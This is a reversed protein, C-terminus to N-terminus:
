IVCPSARLEFMRFPQGGFLEPELVLAGLRRLWRISTANGDHVFNRLVPYRQFLQARFPKSQHLIPVLYAVAVDTGLFWPAGIGDAARIDAAGFIAEPRGDVLVTWAASSRSLSFELAARPSKGGSATIGDRDAKRMRKAITGVHEVRAPVIQISSNRDSM